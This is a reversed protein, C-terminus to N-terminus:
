SLQPSIKFVFIGQNQDATKDISDVNIQYNKM